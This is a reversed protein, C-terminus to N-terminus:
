KLVKKILGWFLIFLAMVFCGLMTIFMVAFVKVVPDIGFHVREM